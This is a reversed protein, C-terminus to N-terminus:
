SHLSIILNKLDSSFVDDIRALITEDRFWPLESVGNEEKRSSCTDNDNDGSIYEDLVGGTNTISLIQISQLFLEIAQFMIKAGGSSFEPIQFCAGYYLFTSKRGTSILIKVLTIIPIINSQYLYTLLDVTIMGMESRQISDISTTATSQTITSSLCYTHDMLMCIPISTTVFQTIMVYDASVHVRGSSSNSNSNNDMEVQANTSHIHYDKMVLVLLNKINIHLFLRTSIAEHNYESFQILRCLSSLAKMSKRLVNTVYGFVIAWENQSVASLKVSDCSIITSIWAVPLTDVAILDSQIYKTLSAISIGLETLAEAVKSQMAQISTDDVLLSLGGSMSTTNSHASPAMSTEDLVADTDISVAVATINEDGDMSQNMPNASINKGGTDNDNDDPYIRLSKAYQKCSLSFVEQLKRRGYNAIFDVLSQHQLTAQQKILHITLDVVMPHAPSLACLEALTHKLYTDIFDSLFLRSERILEKEILDAQEQLESDYQDYRVRKAAFSQRPNQLISEFSSVLENMDSSVVVAEDPYKMGDETGAVGHAKRSQILISEITERSRLLLSQVYLRSRSQRNLHAVFTWLERVSSAIKDKLRISCAQQIHDLLVVSMQQLQPHQQWFCGQLSTILLFYHFNPNM